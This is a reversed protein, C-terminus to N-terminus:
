DFDPGWIKPASTFEFKESSSPEVQIARTASLIPYDPTGTPGLRGTSALWNHASASKYTSGPDSVSKQKEKRKVAVESDEISLLECHRMAAACCTNLM